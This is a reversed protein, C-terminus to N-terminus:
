DDSEDSEAGAAIAAEAPFDEPWLTDDNFRAGHLTATPLDVAFSLDAGCLNAGALNARFLGVKNMNANTLIAGSLNANTLNADPLQTDSLIADTLNADELQVGELRASPFRAGSLNANSLDAHALRADSLNARVLIADSLDANVLKAGALNAGILRVGSLKSNVLKSGALNADELNVGILIFREDEASDLGPAIFKISQEQMAQWALVRLLPLAEKILFGRKHALTGGIAFAAMALPARTDTHAAPREDDDGFPLGIRLDEVMKKAWDELQVRQAPPEAKVLEMLFHITQDENAQISLGELVREEDERKAGSPAHVIRRLQERWARAVLFEQFSRHGFFMVEQGNRLGLHTTLVCALSVQSLQAEGVTGGVAEHIVTKAESLTLDRPQKKQGRRHMELAIRGLIWLMAHERTPTERHHTKEWQRHLYPLVVDAALDINPHKEELSSRRPTAAASGLKGKALRVLFQEYLAASTQPAGGSEGWTSAVMFLLVPTRLLDRLNEPVAAARAPGSQKLASWRTLWEDQEAEGFAQVTFMPSNEPLKPVVGPRTFVVLHHMDDASDELDALLDKRVADSMVVEDFGDLVVILRYDDPQSLRVDSKGRDEGSLERWYARVTESILSKLETTRKLRERCSVYVPMWRESLPKQAERWDKAWEAVLMRATLTKGFGMAGSVVTLGHQSAADRLTGLAKTPESDWASGERRVWPEVYVDELPMFVVGEGENFESLNGFVHRRGWGAYHRALHDWLHLGNTKIAARVEAELAQGEPRACFFRWLAMFQREVGRREQDTRLWALQALEQRVTLEEWLAKFWPTGTPPGLWDALSAPRVQTALVDPAAAAAMTAVVGLARELAAGQSPEPAPVGGDIARQGLDKIRGWNVSLGRQVAQLATNAQAEPPAVERVSRVMLTTIVLGRRVLLGAVPPADILDKNAQGLLSVLKATADLGFPLTRKAPDLGLEVASKLLDLSAVVLANSLM